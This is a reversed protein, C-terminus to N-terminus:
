HMTPDKIYHEVQAMDREQRQQIEDFMADVKDHAEARADRMKKRQDAFCEELRM